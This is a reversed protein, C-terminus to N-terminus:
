SRLVKEQTNYKYPGRLCHDWFLYFSLHNRQGSVDLSKNQPPNYFNTFSLYGKVGGKSM